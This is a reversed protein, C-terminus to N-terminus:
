GGICVNIKRRKPFKVTNDTLRFILIRNTHNTPNSDALFTMIRIFMILLMLVSYQIESVSVILHDDLDVVACVGFIQVATDATNGETIYGEVVVGM